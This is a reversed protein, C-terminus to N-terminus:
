FVSSTVVSCAQTVCTDEAAGGGTVPAIPTCSSAPKSHTSPLTPQPGTHVSVDMHRSLEMAPSRRHRPGGASLTDIHETGAVSPHRLPASMVTNPHEEATATLSITYHPTVLGDNHSPAKRTRLGNNYCHLHHSLVALPQFLQGMETSSAGGVARESTSAQRATLVHSFRLPDELLPVRGSASPSPHPLANKPDFPLTPTPGCAHVQCQVCTARHRQPKPASRWPLASEPPRRQEHHLHRHPWRAYSAWQSVGEGLCREFRGDDEEPPHEGQPPILSSLQVVANPFVSKLLKSCHGGCARRSPTWGARTWGSTSSWCSSTEASQFMKCGTYFTTWPSAPSALRKSHKTLTCWSQDSKDSCLTGLWCTHKALLSEASRWGNGQRGPTVTPTVLHRGPVQHASPPSQGMTTRADRDTHNPPPATIASPVPPTSDTITSPQTM